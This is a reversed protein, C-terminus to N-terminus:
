GLGAEDRPFTEQYARSVQRKCWGETELLLRAPRVLEHCIDGTGSSHNCRDLDEHRLASSRARLHDPASVVGPRCARIRPLPEEGFFAVTQRSLETSRIMDRIIPLHTQHQHSEPIPRVDQPQPFAEPDGLRNGAPVESLAM